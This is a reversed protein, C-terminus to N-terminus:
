WDSLQLARRTMEWPTHLSCGNPWPTWNPTGRDPNKYSGCFTETGVNRAVLDAHGITSGNSGHAYLVRGPTGGFNVDGSSSNVDPVIGDWSSGILTWSTGNVGQPEPVGQWSYQMFQSGPRMQECQKWNYAYWCGVAWATGSHPTGLTVVDQIRLYPPFDPNHIQTMTLAYRVILGGMSHAVVDVSRGYQSHRNYVEWAFHYALHNIPTHGNVHDFGNTHANPWYGYHRDWTHGLPYGYQLGIDCNFDGHFMHLRHMPGTRAPYGSGGTRLHAILPNWWNCDHNDLGHVFYVPAEPNTPAAWNAEYGQDGAVAPMASVGTLSVALASLAVILRLRIM